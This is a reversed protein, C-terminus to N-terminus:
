HSADRDLDYDVPDNVIDNPNGESIEKGHQNLQRLTSDDTTTTQLWTNGSKRFVQAMLMFQKKISSELQRVTIDPSVDLQGNTVAVQAKPIQMTEIMKRGLKVDSMNKYFELKLYPFLIHFAKQVEGIRMHPLITIKM